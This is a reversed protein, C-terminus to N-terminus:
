RFYFRSCWIHTHPWTYVGKKIRLIEIMFFLKFNVIQNPHGVLTDTKFLIFKIISSAIAAIRDIPEIYRIAVTVSNLKSLNSLYFVFKDFNQFLMLFFIRTNKWNCIVVTQLWNFLENLRCLVTLWKLQRIYSYCHIYFQACEWCM